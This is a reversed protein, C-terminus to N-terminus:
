AANNDEKKKIIAKKALVSLGWGLMLYSAPEGNVDLGVMTKIATASEPSLTVITILILLMTISWLWFPLNGKFFIAWSWEALHKRATFVAYLIVALIGLFLKLKIDVM